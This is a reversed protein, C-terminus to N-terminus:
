GGRVATVLWAYGPLVVGGQGAHAALEERLSTMLAIGTGLDVQRLAQEVGLDRLMPLAEDVDGGLRMEWRLEDIAPEAFGAAALVARIRGPEALAFPGARDDDPPVAAPAFRRLAVRPIAFLPNRDPAPWCIFSLRGGRVLTQRLQRLAEELDPFFTIGLRSIVAHLSSPEFLPRQADALLLHADLGNKALRERARALMQGSIDVGIALGGPAIREALAFTTDGCGCGIDAVRQGPSLEAAALLRQGPEALLRDYDEQLEVWHASDDSLWVTM